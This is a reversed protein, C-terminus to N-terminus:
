EARAELNNNPSVRYRERLERLASAERAKDVLEIHDLSVISAFEAHYGREYEIVDGWLKVTGFVLDHGTCGLLMLLPGHPEKFAHIGAPGYDEIRQGEILGAVKGPMWFYDMYTSKLHGLQLQWVRYGTLEGFKTSVPLAPLPSPRTLENSFKGTLAAAAAAAVHQASYAQQASYAPQALANLQAQRQLHNAYLNNGMLSGGGFLAM